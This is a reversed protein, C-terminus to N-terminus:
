NGLKLKKARPMFVERCRATTRVIWDLMEPWADRDWVDAEHEVVIIKDRNEPHPNWQMEFGLEKEIEEKQELLQELAQDAVPSHLYVRVGVRGEYTNCTASLYVNARGLAVDFWYQPRPTQASPVVGSDILRERFQTWFDLQLRRADTLGEREKAATAQRVIEAPRSIVNFRVAPRSNDIQWLEVQVGYLAIEDTTNDNLWDLAKQHEQTFQTAIWVVTAADLVSGYTIVKGLHDHNTKGLQNEIVVYRGTGTDKALIDASYPGVSVEVGEVELEIGIANGLLAVNEEEALWPTFDSAENPWQKRVDCTTIEGLEDAM